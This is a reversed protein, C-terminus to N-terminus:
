NLNLIVISILSVVFGIIKMRGTKEKYILVSIIFTSVIGGASVIPFMISASMKVTLILTLLNAFVNAIGNPIGYILAYKIMNRNSAADSKKALSYVVLNIIAATLMAITIIEYQYKGPTLVQHYKQIVSCIGSAFFVLSGYFIWKKSVATENKGDSRNFLLLAVIFLLLGIATSVSFPERLFLIGFLVPIITAFSILLYTVSLPGCKIAILTSNISVAFIVGFMLGLVITPVHFEFEKYGIAATMVATTLTMIFNLMYPGESVDAKLNFQKRFVGQIGISFICFFLLLYNM